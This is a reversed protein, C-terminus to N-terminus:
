LFQELAEKVREYEKEAQEYLQALGDMAGSRSLMEMERCLRSLGLAGVNGSASKLAHSLACVQGVDKAELALRIKEMKEGSETFFLVFLHSFLPLEELTVGLLGQIVGFDVPPAAHAPERATLAEPATLGQQPTSATEGEPPEQAASSEEVAADINQQPSLWCQLAELLRQLRVPKSIYDDMGAELCKERDGPLAHATVAVIPTHTEQGEFARILATASYGDMVPMQCDMLILGYHNQRVLQVAEDGNAATHIMDIGLQKLQTRIMKINIPNDEVVLVPLGRYGELTWPTTMRCPTTRNDKRSQCVDM